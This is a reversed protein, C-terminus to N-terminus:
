EEIQVEMDTLDIFVPNEGKTFDIVGSVRQNKNIRDNIIEKTFVIQYKMDSKYDVKIVTGYETYLNVFNDKVLIKKIFEFNNLKIYYILESIESISIENEEFIIEEGLEYIIKQNTEIMFLNPASNELIRLPIGEYDLILIEENTKLVIADVRETISISLSSPLKKKIKMDKIYAEKRLIDRLFDKKLLFINEGKFEDLKSFLNESELYENGEIHINSVDFFGSYFLFYFLGGIILIVVVFKSIFILIKKRKQKRKEKRIERKTKFTM